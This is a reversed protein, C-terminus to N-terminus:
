CALITSRGLTGCRMAFSAASGEQKESVLLAVGYQGPRLMRRLDEVMDHPVGTNVLRATLAGGSAGVIGGVVLGMPCAVLAGVLAGVLASPVAVALPAPNMSAVVEDAAVMAADHIVFKGDEQLQLAAHMAQRALEHTEFELELVTM